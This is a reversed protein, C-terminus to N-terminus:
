SQEKQLIYVSASSLFTQDLKFCVQGEHWLMNYESLDAHVLNCDQYLSQMMQSVSILLHINVFIMFQVGLILVSFYMINFMIDKMTGNNENCNFM